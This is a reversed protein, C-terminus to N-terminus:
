PGPTYGNAPDEGYLNASDEGYLYSLVSACLVAAVRERYAGDSLRAAEEPNSLFGCECLIGVGVDRSLLYISTDARKIERKNEPQLYTRNTDRLTMALRRSEEERAGGAYFVQMGHYKPDGFTNMHVSVFLADPTRQWVALRNRLDTMKRHGPTAGDYLGRDDERTYAVSVGASQLMDGLRLAISLNLTKEAVGDSSVAGGDEGGHGPDILVTPVTGRPVSSADSTVQAATDQM